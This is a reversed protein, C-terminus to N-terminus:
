PQYDKCSPQLGEATGIRLYRSFEVQMQHLPEYVHQKENIINRSSKIQQITNKKKSNAKSDCRDYIDYTTSFSEMTSFDKEISDLSDVTSQFCGNSQCAHLSSWYTGFLEGIRNPVVQGSCGWSASCKPFRVGYVTYPM